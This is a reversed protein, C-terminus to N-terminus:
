PNMFRMFADFRARMEDEVEPANYFIQVHYEHRQLTALLSEIDETNVKFTVELLESDEMPAVNFSTVQAGDAEVIRMLATPSLDKPLVELVLTSGPFGWGARKALFKLISARDVAGKYLGEHVVPLVDLDSWAMRAVVDYLHVDPTLFDHLFPVEAILADDECELLASESVTGKFVDDEVVPLHTVKLEDMLSLARHVSDTLMLVPLDLSLFRQARMVYKRTSVWLYPHCPEADVYVFDGGQSICPASVFGVDHLRRHSNLPKPRVPDRNMRPGIRTVDRVFVHGVKPFDHVGFEVDFAVWAGIKHRKHTGCARFLDGQHGVRGVDQGAIGTPAHGFVAVAQAVDKCTECVVADACGEEEFRVAGLDFRCGLHPCM